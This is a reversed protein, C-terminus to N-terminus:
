IHFSVLPKHEAWLKPVLKEVTEYEVPIEVIILRVKFENEIGLSPLLKVSEWSANIKHNGFPGFGTVVIKPFNQEMAASSIIAELLQEIINHVSGRFYLFRKDSPLCSTAM